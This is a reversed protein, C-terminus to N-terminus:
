YYILLFFFFCNVSWMNFVFVSPANFLFFTSKVFLFIWQLLHVSYFNLEIVYFSLLCGFSSWLKFPIILFIVLLHLCYFLCPYVSNLYINFQFCLHIVNSLSSVKLHDFACSMVNHSSSETDFWMVSIYKYCFNWFVLSTILLLM